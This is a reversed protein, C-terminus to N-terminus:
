LAISWSDVYGTDYRYVDRVRLTWTGDADYSSM